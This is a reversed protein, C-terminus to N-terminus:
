SGKGPFFSRVRDVLDGFAAADFLRYGLGVLVASPGLRYAIFLVTIPPDTPKPHMQGWLWPLAFAVGLAMLVIGAITYKHAKQFPAPPTPPGTM